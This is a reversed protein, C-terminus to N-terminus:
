TQRRERLAKIAARQKAAIEMLRENEDRIAELDALEDGSVSGVLRERKGQLREVQLQERLLRLDIRWASGIRIAPLEGKRLLHYIHSPSVDLLDAVEKATAFGSRGNGVQHDRM